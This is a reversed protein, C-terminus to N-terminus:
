RSSPSSCLEQCPAPGRDGLRHGLLAAGAVGLLIGAEPPWWAVQADTPRCPPFLCNPIGSTCNCLNIRM